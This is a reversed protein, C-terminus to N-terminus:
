GFAPPKGTIAVIFSAVSAFIFPNLMWTWVNVAALIREFWQVGPATILMLDNSTAGLTWRRRQSLFVSWSRPVDTYAKAHLAQRTESQPRATLMHCVHNRDESATARIQKLLGDTVEPCYGFLELLVHDGCTEECIRLLQCCGPLCSVKHTVLSQHVRRLGQAITYEASQYLGWLSWRGDKWDVSVYGCVGVTKPYRSQQLLEYICNKDFVTDADMGILHVVNDMNADLTLFSAMDNFFGPSFVTLPAETRRNFNYLFSRAVILGDRKGQNQQKIICYYPMGQYKGRQVVVNMPEQDWATYAGAIYKREAKNTLIDQLLYDGTTKEMGPGRVKGDCVIIIAKKHLDIKNQSVLSDLSKTLEEKTENYCPILLVMSEPEEPMIIKEPIAANWAVRLIISFVMAVNLAVTATILPLLIYYYRTWWWTAFICLGNLSIQSAQMLHKQIQIKRRGKRRLSGDVDVLRTRPALQSTIFAFPVTADQKETRVPSPQKVSDEVAPLGRAPAATQAGHDESEDETVYSEPPELEGLWLRRPNRSVKLSITPKQLLELPNSPPQHIGNITTVKEVDNAPQQQIIQYIQDETQTEFGERPNTVQIRSKGVSGEDSSASTATEDRLELDSVFSSSSHSKRIEPTGNLEIQCSLKSGRTSALSSAPSSIGSTRISSKASDEYSLMSVSESPSTFDSLRQNKSIAAARVASAIGASVVEHPSPTSSRSMETIQVSRGRKSSELDLREPLDYNQRVLTIPM